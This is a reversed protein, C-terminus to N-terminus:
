NQPNKKKKKKKKKKKLAIGNQQKRYLTESLFGEFNQTKTKTKHTM